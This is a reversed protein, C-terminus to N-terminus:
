NTFLEQGAFRAAQHQTIIDVKALPKARFQFSDGGTRLASGHEAILHHIRLAETDHFKVIIEAGQRDLFFRLM